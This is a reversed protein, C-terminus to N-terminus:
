GADGKWVEETKRDGCTMIVDLLAGQRLFQHGRKEGLAHQMGRGAALM